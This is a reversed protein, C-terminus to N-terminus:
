LVRQGEECKVTDHGGHCLVDSHMDGFILFIHQKLHIIIGSDYEYLM